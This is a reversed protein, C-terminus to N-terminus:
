CIVLMWGVFCNVTLQWSTVVGSAGTFIYNGTRVATRYNGKPEAVQPLVYGLEALRREIHVSRKTAVAVAQRNKVLRLLPTTLM